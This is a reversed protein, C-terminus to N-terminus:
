KNYDELLDIIEDYINLAETLNGNYLTKLGKKGLDNVNIKLEELRYLELLRYQYELTKADMTGINWKILEGLKSSTTEAPSIEKPEKIFHLYYLPIIDEVVVGNITEGFNNSFPLSAEFLGELRLPSLNSHTKIIKLKGRLMFIITRSVRRRLDYNIETKENPPINQLQWNLEMGEETLIKNPLEKVEKGNLEVETIEYNYPILDKIIAEEIYDDFPNVLESRFSYEIKKVEDDKEETQEKQKIESVQETELLEGSKSRIITKNKIENKVEVRHANLLNGVKRLTENVDDSLDGLMEDVSLEEILPLVNEEPEIIGKLEEAQKKLEARKKRNEKESKEKLAKLDNLRQKYEFAINNQNVEQALEIIKECNSIAAEFFKKDLNENLETKLNDLKINLNKFQEEAEILENRKEELKKSYELIDKDQLYQLVEDIKATAEQFKFNNKLESTEQLSKEVKSITNKKKKLELFQNEVEFWEEKIDENPIKLLKEKAKKLIKNADELEGKDISDLIQTKLDYLKRINEKSERQFDMWIIKDKSILNRASDLDNLNYKEGYQSKLDEILSHAKVINEPKNTKILSTYEKEITEIQEQVNTLDDKLLIRNELEKIKDLQENELASDNLKESIEIIKQATKIADEYKEKEEFNKLEKSLQEKEEMLPKYKDQQVAIHNQLEEWNFGLFQFFDSPESGSEVTINRLIKLEPLKESFRTRIEPIHNRLAQTAEKGIWIYLRKQLSVYVALIDFLTFADVLNDPSIEQFSGSINMKFIKLNSDEM